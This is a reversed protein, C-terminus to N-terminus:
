YKIPSENEYFYLGETMIKILKKHSVFFTGDSDHKMDSMFNKDEVYEYGDYEKKISEIDFFDLGYLIPIYNVSGFIRWKCNIDSKVPLRHKWKKLNSKLNESLIMNDKLESWFPTNNKKCIYHAQIYDSINEFIDNIEKNCQLYDYSPLHNLFCAMGKIVHGFSSAELPEVFGHSLGVAFVNSTWAKELRGPEFKFERIDLQEGYAIEMEQKAQEADIYKDSFAYGNGTRTQTPVSWSWGCDRATAKTYLNYEDSENTLFTIASNVPFRNAYSVWKTNFTKKALLRKFGTADIFFDARYEGKSCLISKLKGEEVKVSNVEDDIITIGRKECLDLLWQNLKQTDFHFQFYPTDDINNFHTLALKNEFIGYSHLDKNSCHKSILHGFFKYYGNDTRTINQDLSHIFDENGWNEFYIGGKFTANASFIPSLAPLNIFKMFQMWHETSSEGVGVIGIKKSGVVSIKKGSYKQKLMLASILGANGSGVVIFSKINM